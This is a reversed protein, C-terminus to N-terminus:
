IGFIRTLRLESVYCRKRSFELEVVPDTPKIPIAATIPITGHFMQTIVGGMRLYWDSPLTTDGDVDFTVWTGQDPAYKRRSAASRKANIAQEWIFRGSLRPIANLPDTTKLNHWSFGPFIVPQYAHGTKQTRANDPGLTSTLWNDATAISNYRGVTWPQVIDMSDYVANWASDTTADKSLSRWGGPVGGIFAARYQPAAGRHFWDLISQAIEPTAPHNGDNFGFGWIAVVPLGKYHFYGPQTTVKLQDVLYMWDTQIQTLITAAAAGSIDYEIAFGRGYHNAGNKVNKLVTDGTSKKGPIDALFRQLLVGDLGYTQM